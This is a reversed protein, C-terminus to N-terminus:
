TCFMCELGGRYRYDTCNVWEESCRGRAHIPQTTAYSVTGDSRRCLSPEIGNCVAIISPLNRIKGSRMGHKVQGSGRGLLTGNMIDLGVVVALWLVDFKPSDGTWASRHIPGTIHHSPVQLLNREETRTSDPRAGPLTLASHLLGGFKSASVWARRLTNSRHTFRSL